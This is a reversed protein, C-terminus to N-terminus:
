PPKFQSPELLAYINRKRGIERKNRNVVKDYKVTIMGLRKLDRIIKPISKISLHAEQAITAYSPYCTNKHIGRWRRYNCLVCYVRWHNGRPHYSLIHQFAETYYWSWKDDNNGAQKEAM